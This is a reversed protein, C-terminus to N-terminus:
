AVIEDKFKHLAHRPTLVLFSNCLDGSIRGCRVATNVLLGDRGNIRGKAIRDRLIVAV